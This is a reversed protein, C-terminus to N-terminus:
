PATKAEAMIRQREPKWRRHIWFWQQPNKAVQAELRQTMDKTMTLADSHPIPDEFIVEFNRGDPKRVGFFPILLAGTKLAIDAASTMTPAPKGLFDVVEGDSDYIDFLLVGMGGKKIHRFLGMTGRRGQEFVPGSLSHMNEAYHANFFPNSMPRYLGGVEFGQAVLAARPVEFNGFHATVFIVPQGSKDAEKVAELGNGSIDANQMRKKLGLIDYNEILTRGANDAVADAIQRKKSTPTDPYIYDLNAIARSRYGALPAVVRRLLMGMFWLRMGLPMALALSIFGRVVLDTAKQATSGKSKQTEAMSGRFCLKSVFRVALVYRFVLTEDKIQIIDCIACYGVGEEM